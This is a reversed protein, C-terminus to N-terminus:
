RRSRELTALTSKAREFREDDDIWSPDFAVRDLEDAVVRAAARDSTDLVTSAIHSNTRVTPDGSQDLSRQVMTSLAGFRDQLLGWRGRRRRHYALAVLRVIGWM